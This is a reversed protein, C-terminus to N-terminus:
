VTAATGESAPTREVQVKRRWLALGTMAVCWLTILAIIWPPQFGGPIIATALALLGVIAPSLGLSLLLHIMRKPITRARGVVAQILLYGPVVLLVSLTFIMRGANGDPLAFAAAAALVALVGAIVVDM